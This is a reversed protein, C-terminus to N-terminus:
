SQYIITTGYKDLNWFKQELGSLRKAINKHKERPAIFLMFGGAGAGLLKGGLAGASVAEEYVQDLVLNSIGTSLQKKLKWNEALIEGCIRIEGNLVAQEFQNVLNVMEILIKDNKKNETSTNQGKLISSARRTTGTYFIMMSSLLDSKAFEPINVSKRLVNGNPLFDFKNFGGYSAAYQDQKGIPEKCLEIEVQCALNALKEKSRTGGIYTSLANLLGVTFSSSSGLGSGNSPIDATSTIEVGAKLGLLEASHRVIPHEVESFNRCEEVKSYALRVSNSFSKNVSVYVYKDVTMSFVQGINRSFFSPLDSGGGVFSIRLPTRSVIM